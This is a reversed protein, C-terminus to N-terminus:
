VSGKPTTEVKVLRNNTLIFDTVWNEKDIQRLDM